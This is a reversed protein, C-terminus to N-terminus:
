IYDGSKGEVIVVRSELVQNLLHTFEGPKIIRVKKATTASHHPAGDKCINDFIERRVRRDLMRVNDSGLAFRYSVAVVISKLIEIAVRVFNRWVANSVKLNNPAEALRFALNTGFYPKAVTIPLGLQPWPSNTSKAPYCFTAPLINQFIEGFCFRLGFRFFHFFVWSQLANTTITDEVVFKPVVLLHVPIKELCNENVKSPLM